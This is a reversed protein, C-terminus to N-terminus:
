LDPRWYNQLKFFRQSTKYSEVPNMEQNEICRHFKEFEEEFQQALIWEFRKIKKM